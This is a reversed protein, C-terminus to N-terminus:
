KRGDGGAIDDRMRIGDNMRRLQRGRASDVNFFDMLVFQERYKSPKLQRWIEARCREM